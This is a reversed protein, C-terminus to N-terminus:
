GHALCKDSGRYRRSKQGPLGKGSGAFQNKICGLRVLVGLLCNIGELLSMRINIHFPNTITRGLNHRFQPGFKRGTRRLGVHQQDSVHDVHFLQFAFATQHGIVRRRNGTVLSTNM